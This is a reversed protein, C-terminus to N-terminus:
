CDPNQDAGHRARGFHHRLLHLLRQFRGTVMSGDLHHIIEIGAYKRAAANEQDATRRISVAINGVIRLCQKSAQLALAWIKGTDSVSHDSESVARIFVRKAFAANPEILDQRFQAGMPCTLDQFMVGTGSGQRFFHGGLPDTWPHFM